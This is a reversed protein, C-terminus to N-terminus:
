KPITTEVKRINGSTDYIYTYKLHQQPLKESILQNLKDYQYEALKTSGQSVKSVNGIADYEYSLDFPNATGTYAINAIQNTTLQKDDTQGARDHYTYTQAMSARAGSARLVNIVVM